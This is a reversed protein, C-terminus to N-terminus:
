KSVGKFFLIKVVNFLLEHAVQLKKWLDFHKLRHKSSDKVRDEARVVQARVKNLRNLAREQRFLAKDRRWEIFEVGINTYLRHAAVFLSLLPLIFLLALFLGITKLRNM